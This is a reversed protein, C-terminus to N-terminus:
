EKIQVLKQYKKVNPSFKKVIFPLSVIQYICSPFFKNKKYNCIITVKLNTKQINKM